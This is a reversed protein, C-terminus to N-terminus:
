RKPENLKIFTLTGSITGGGKPVIFQPAAKGLEKTIAFPKHMRKEECAGLLGLSKDDLELSFELAGKNLANNKDMPVVKSAIDNYSLSLIYTGEELKATFKGDRGTQGTFVIIGGPNKKVIIDVGPIPNNTAFVINPSFANVAFFFLLSIISKKM